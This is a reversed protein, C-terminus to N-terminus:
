FKPGNWIPPVVWWWTTSNGPEQKSDIGLESKARLLTRKSIGAAAAEEEIERSLRDRYQDPQEANRMAQKIFQTAVDKQTPKKRKNDQWLDHATVNKVGEWSVRAVTIDDHPANLTAPTLRFALTERDEPPALNGKNVALLKRGTLEREGTPNGDDNVVEEEEDVVLLSSRACASFGISGISATQVAGTKMKPLHSVGLAAINRHDLLDMLQGLVARVATNSHSDIKAGLFESIPDFVILAIEPHQELCGEIRQVDQTLDLGRRTGDSTRLYRLFIVRSMNAGAAMLRPVLTHEVRDETCVILVSTPYNMPPGSDPLMTAGTTVRACIDIFIHSKGVDPLGILLSLTGRPIRGPWLWDQKRPILDAGCRLDFQFNPENPTGSASRRTWKGSAFKNRTDRIMGPLEKLSNGEYSEPFAARVVREIEDSDDSLNALQAVFKLTADHTLQGSMIEPLHESAFVAEIFEPDILPLEQWEVELLAQDTWRYPKQIDPHITPPIVCLSGVGLLEGAKSRDYLKLDFKAVEETVRAFLAIGKAGIRGCPSPVLARALRVFEDRDADIAVLYSGDEFRAGLRLGIGCDVGRPEPVTATAASWGKVKCGKTGPEIPRPQYGADVYRQYHQSYISALRKVNTDSM